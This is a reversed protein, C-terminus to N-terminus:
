IFIFHVSSDFPRTRIPQRRPRVRIVIASASVHWEPESVKWSLRLTGWGQSQLSPCSSSFDWHTLHFGTAPPGCRSCVLVAARTQPDADALENYNCSNDLLTPPLIDVWLCKWSDVRHKWGTKNKRGEAMTENGWNKTLKKKTGDDKDGVKQEKGEEKV